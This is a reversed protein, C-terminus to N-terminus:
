KASETNFHIPVYNHKKECIICVLMGLIFNPIHM